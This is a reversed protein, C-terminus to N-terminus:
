DALELTIKTLCSTARTTLRSMPKEYSRLVARTLNKEGFDLVLCRQEVGSGQGRRAEATSTCTVHHSIIYSTGETGGYTRVYMRVEYTTDNDFVGSM